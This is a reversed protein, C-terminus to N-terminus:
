VVIIEIILYSECIQFICPSISKSLSESAEAAPIKEQPVYNMYQVFAGVPARTM